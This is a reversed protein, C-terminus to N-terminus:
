LYLRVPPMNAYATLLIPHLSVRHPSEAHQILRVLEESSLFGKFGSNYPDSSETIFPIGSRWEVNRARAFTQELLVDQTSMSVTAIRDGLKNLYGPRNRAEVFNQAHQISVFEVFCDMTKGTLRDLIIHVPWGMSNDLIGANAGIFEYM